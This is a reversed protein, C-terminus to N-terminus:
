EKICRLNCLDVAWVNSHGSRNYMDEKYTDWSVFPQCSTDEIITGTAGINVCEIEVKAEVRQGVKCNKIKM